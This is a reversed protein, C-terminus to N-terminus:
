PRLAAVPDASTPLQTPDFTQGNIDVKLDTGEVYPVESSIECYHVRLTM